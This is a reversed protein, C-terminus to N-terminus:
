ERLKRFFRWRNFRDYAYVEAALVAFFCAAMILQDDWDFLKAIYRGVAPGILGPPILAAMVMGWFKFREIYAQIIWYMRCSYCRLCCGAIAAGSLFEVFGSAIPSGVGYYRVRVL